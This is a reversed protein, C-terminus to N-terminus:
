RGTCMYVNLLSTSMTGGFFRTYQDFPNNAFSAFFAFTKQFLNSKGKHM